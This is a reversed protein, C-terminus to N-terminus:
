MDSGKRGRQYRAEMKAFQIDSDIGDISPWFTDRLHKVHRQLQRQEQPADLRRRRSGLRGAGAQLRGAQSVRVATAAAARPGGHGAGDPGHHTQVALLPLLLRGARSGSPPPVPKTIFSDLKRMLLVASKSPGYYTKSRVFSPFIYWIAFNYM